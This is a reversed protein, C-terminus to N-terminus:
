RGSALIDKFVELYGDAMQVQTFHEEVHKRCAAPDIQDVKKVAEIMEDVTNVIFGTVGDVIVEPVSGRGFAVVPTGCAMAEIMVIGFPEEWQIPFLMCKAHSFLYQKRDPNIQGEAFILKNDIFPKVKTEWYQEGLPDLKGAIQLRTNLAKAVKIAIDHGKQPRMNGICLLFDEKETVFPYEDIDVANYVTRTFNLGEGIERRQADSIPIYWQNDKNKDFFPQNGFEFYNNHLTTVVPRDILDAMAIGAAGCNNHIIDFESAQTYAWAPQEVYYSVDMNQFGTAKPYISRLPAKTISDGSAFLTVDEGRKYLEEVLLHTVIEIGGYQEPPVRVWVPNIVAIKM